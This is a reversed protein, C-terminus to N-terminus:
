MIRNRYNLRYSYRQEQRKKFNNYISFLIIVFPVILAGRLGWMSYTVAVFVGFFVYFEYHTKYKSKVDMFTAITWAYTITAMVACFVLYLMIKPIINNYRRM